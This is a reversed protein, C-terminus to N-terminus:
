CVLGLESSDTKNTRMAELLVISVQNRREGVNEFEVSYNGVETSVQFPLVQNMVDGDDPCLCPNLEFFWDSGHRVALLTSSSNCRLSQVVSGVSGIRNSGIGDSGISGIRDSGDSGIRDTRIRDAVM